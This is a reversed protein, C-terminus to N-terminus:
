KLAKAQKFLYLEYCRSVYDAVKGANAQRFALLRDMAKYQHSQPYTVINEDDYWTMTAADWGQKRWPEYCVFASAYLAKQKLGFTKAKAAEDLLIAADEMFDKNGTLVSDQMSSWGYQTLWWCDGDYTAQYYMTALRYALERRKESKRMNRHLSQLEMMKRCYDLKKNTTLPEKVRFAEETTEQRGFWREVDYSCARVYPVINQTNLFKLSVKKLYPIAEAFRGRALYKTGILDNFYNPDRYSHEWAYQALRDTPREYLYELYDITQEPSLKQLADFCDGSYDQNMQEWENTGNARERYKKSNYPDTEHMMSLLSIVMNTNGERSYKHVLGHYVLRDEVERYHQYLSVTDRMDRRNMEELWQLEGALWADYQSTTPEVYVSNVAYIARANDKMRPTGAMTLSAKLDAKAEAYRGLQHEICGIASQWLCPNRTKGAKVVGRAFAIFEEADPQYVVRAGIDQLWDTCTSDGKAPLLTGGDDFMCDYSEQTNNVFDQVLYVLTASNPNEQYIKKIGAVNRYKMVCYQLSSYDGQEAYIEVAANRRGTRLLSGAYLNRMMDRYVSTPLKRGIQEWYAINEKHRNLGFLARMALLAYQGRLRSGKYRRAIAYQRRLTSDRSALQQKTPYNWGDFIDNGNLFANLLKLYRVMETDHKAKAVDMIQDCYWTYGNIEAMDGVYAKWFADTKDAFPNSMLDRHFVSFLYNNYTYPDFACAKTRLAPLLALAFLLLCRSWDTVTSFRKM